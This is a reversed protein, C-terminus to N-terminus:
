PVQSSHSPVGKTAAGPSGLPRRASRRGRTVDGWAVLGRDLTSSAGAVVAHPWPRPIVGLLDRERTTPCGNSTGLEAAPGRLEPRFIAAARLVFSPVSRTSVTSARDGPQTLGLHGCRSPAPELSALLIRQGAAGPADIAAIHAAAVDRVDVIPIAM